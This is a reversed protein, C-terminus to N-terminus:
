RSLLRRVTHQRLDPFEQHPHTQTWIQLFQPIMGANVAKNIMHPDNVLAARLM